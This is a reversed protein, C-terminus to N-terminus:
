GILLTLGVQLLGILFGLAGGLIAMYRIEKALIQNFMEELRDMPFNAVKETVISELDLQDQLQASYTQMLNPFLTTLEEMFVAKLKGITKDGIFMSIMPMEAVLKEKLFIDVHSEILPSMKELNEPSSITQAIEAFSLLQKGVLQGLQRAVQPQQNPFVGQIRVGLISVPKRPHFLLNLALRHLLWGVFASIFPLIWLWYHM